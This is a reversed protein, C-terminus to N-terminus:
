PHAAGLLPPRRVVLKWPGPLEVQGAGLLRSGRAFPHPLACLRLRVRLAGRPWKVLIAGSTDTEGLAPDAIQQLQGEATGDHFGCERGNAEAREHDCTARTCDTYSPPVLLALCVWSFPAPPLSLSDQSEPKATRPRPHTLSLIM